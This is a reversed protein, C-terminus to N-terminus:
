GPDSQTSLSWTQREIQGDLQRKLCNNENPYPIKCFQANYM